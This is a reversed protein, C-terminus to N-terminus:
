SPLPIVYNKKLYLVLYKRQTATHFCLLSVGNATIVLWKLYQSNFSLHIKLKETPFSASLLFYSANGSLLPLFTKFMYLMKLKCFRCQSHIAQVYSWKEVYDGAFDLCKNLRPVMKQIGSDYFDAAHGKFWTMVEQVAGKNPATHDPNQVRIPGLNETGRWVSGPAWGTEQVTPVRSFRGPSSRQGDV